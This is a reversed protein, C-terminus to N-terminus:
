IYRREVNANVFLPNVDFSVADGPHCDLESVDAAVEYAGISGLLPAKKGGIECCLRERSFLLKLAQRRYRIIDRLRFADKGKELCMGDAYGFPIIAIHLPKKAKFTKYEGVNHGAPLWRLESISSELKGVRQLGQKKKAPVRGFLASGIRVADLRLQPYLMAAASNAIHTIGPNINAKRLIEVCKNFKALQALVNKKDRGSPDTLETFCGTVELNILYKSAQVAKDAEEPLFGFHGLGTDFLLHVRCKVGSREAIGNLLVASDYSGVAATLSLGIIKEATEETCYPLLLLIEADTPLVSAIRVAEEIRSVAFLRVGTDALLRAVELDGLGMANGSLVPIMLTGTQEKIVSINHLIRDKQVVLVAMAKVERIIFKNASPIRNICPCHFGRKFIKPNHKFSLNRLAQM